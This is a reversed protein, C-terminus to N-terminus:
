HMFPSRSVTNSVILMPNRLTHNWPGTFREPGTVPWFQCGGDPESIGVSAGFHRSVDKITGLDIDALEEATPYESEDAPPPSDLCTVALRSLDAAASLDPESVINYTPLLTNLWTTGNGSMAEALSAAAVTWRSPAEM